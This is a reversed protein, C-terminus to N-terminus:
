REKLDNLRKITEFYDMYEEMGEYSELEEKHEICYCDKEKCLAHIRNRGEFTHVITTEYYFNGEHKHISPILFFYVVRCNKKVFENKIINKIKRIKCRIRFLKVDLKFFLNEM